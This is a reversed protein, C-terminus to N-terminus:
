YEGDEEISEIQKNSIKSDLHGSFELDSRSYPSIFYNKTFEDRTIRLFNNNTARKFIYEFYDEM